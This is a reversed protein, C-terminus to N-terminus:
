ENKSRIYDRLLREEGCTLLEPMLKALKQIRGIETINWLDQLFDYGTIENQKSKLGKNIADGLVARMVTSLNECRKRMLLDLGYRIKPDIKITLTEPTSQEARPIGRSM